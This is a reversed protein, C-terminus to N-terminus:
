SKVGKNYDRILGHITKFMRLGYKSLGYNKQIEGDSYGLKRADLYDKPTLRTREAVKGKPREPPLEGNELWWRMQWDTLGLVKMIQKNTVESDRLRTYLDTTLGTEKAQELYDKIRSEKNASVITNLEEGLRRIEVAAPCDCHMTRYKPSCKDCRRLEQRDLEKLIDLRQQKIETKM